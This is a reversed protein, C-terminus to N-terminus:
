MWAPLLRSLTEGTIVTLAVLPAITLIYAIRFRMKRYLLVAAAIAAGYLVVSLVVSAWVGHEANRGSEDDSRGNQPTPEFPKGEMRATVVIADSSNWPARSASTVLTLRDDKSPGYLADVSIADRDPKATTSSTDDGPPDTITRTAVTRVRYVTQGQTTTVLIRDGKRLQALDAFTGGYGNRRGVVAANGPQGLGATGPVHGPGKRTETPSVGEVVVAQTRLAGLEMVAVPDGPAPPKTATSTGPLGSSENAAHRVETRYEALLDHQERQQLLPGLQYVVLGLGAIAVGAWLMVLAGTNSRGSGAAGTSGGGAFSVAGVRRGATLWAALSTILVIGILAVVSGTTDALKHGAFAPIAIAEKADAAPSGTAAAAAATPTNASLQSASSPISSSGLGGPGAGGPGGVAGPASTRGTCPGTVAATGIEPITEGARAVLDPTLPAMGDPLVQQGDGTVYQLWSTLLAQSDTRLTCTADVLPEAPAMAYEVYTLPYPTATSAAAGGTAAAGPDPLLIGQDDQNMTAVAAQMSEETPAVFQGPSVEISAPTMGLARATALDTIAWIPGETSVANRAADTVKSLVPRGTFTDAFPFTPKATAASLVPGRKAKAENPAIWDDPARQSLFNTLFWTSSEAESPLMPKATPVAASLRNNLVPNRAYIDKEFTNREDQVWPLGGGFLAAVEAATLKIEPYPQKAGTSTLYGGGVAVVAANLAVPTAVAARKSPADAALGVDANYGAATYVLDLNGGAFSTVATGEGVFAARSASGAAGPRTCLDKTWLAWADQMQDSGGSSLVGAAPGGCAAALADNVFTLPITTYEFTGSLHVQVVLVCPTEEDCSFTGSGFDITGVGVKFPIDVGADTHVAASFADGGRPVVQDATSSVPKDPCNGADPLVDARQAYTVGAKCQRLEVDFVTVDPNAKINVVIPTGDALGTTPGTAVATWGAGPSAAHGATTLIAAVAIAAVTALALGHDAVRRLLRTV